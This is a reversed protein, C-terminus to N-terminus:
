FIRFFNPNKKEIKQKKLAETTELQLFLPKRKRTKKLRLYPASKPRERSTLHFLPGVNFLLVLQVIKVIGHVVVDSYFVFFFSVHLCSVKLGRCEVIRLDAPVRDGFQIEVLDGVVLNEAMIDYKKGERIVRATQFVLLIYCTM